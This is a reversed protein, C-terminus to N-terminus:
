HSYVDAALHSLYGWAFAQEEDSRARALVRWGIRWNHCHTYISGTYRKVQIMDAGICGYLYQWRHEALLRQLAEPVNSLDGLVRAGHALHTVPGWAWADHPLLCLVAAAILVPVLM